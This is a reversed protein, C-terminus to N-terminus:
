AMSMLRGGLAQLRLRSPLELERSNGARTISQVLDFLRDGGEIAWGAQVAKREAETLKARMMHRELEEWPEAYTVDRSAEIRRTMSPLMALLSSLAAQLEDLVKHQDALHTRKMSADESITMGNSCILRIVCGTVSLSALGVESNVVNFGGVHADGAVELRTNDGVLQAAFRTATLEYRVQFAHNGDAAFEAVRRIVDVNGIPTYRSSLIARV